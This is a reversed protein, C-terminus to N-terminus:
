PSRTVSGALRKTHPSARRECERIDHSSKRGFGLALVSDVEIFVVDSRVPDAVDAHCAYISKM